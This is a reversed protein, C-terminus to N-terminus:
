FFHSVKSKTSNINLNTDGIQFIKRLIEGTRTILLIRNGVLHEATLFYVYM